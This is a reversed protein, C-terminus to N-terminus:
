QTSRVPALCGVILAWITVVALVPCLVLLEVRINYGMATAFAEYPAWLAWAGSAVLLPWARFRGTSRLLAYGALFLVAVVAIREPHLIFPEFPMFAVRLWQMGDPM